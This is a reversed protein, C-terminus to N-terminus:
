LSHLCIIVRMKTRNSKLNSKDIVKTAMTHTRISEAYNRLLITDIKGDVNLTAFDTQFARTKWLSYFEAMRTLTAPASPNRYKFRLSSEDASFQEILGRTQASVQQLNSLVMVVTLVALIWRTLNWRQTSTFQHQRSNM